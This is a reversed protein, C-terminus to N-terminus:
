AGNKILHYYHAGVTNPALSKLYKFDMLTPVVVNDIHDETFDGRAWIIDRGAKTKRNAAAMMPGFPINMERYMNVIHDLRHQGNMDPNDHDGFGQADTSMLYKTTKFIKSLNWM